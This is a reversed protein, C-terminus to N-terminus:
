SRNKYQQLVVVPNDISQQLIRDLESAPAYKETAQLIQKIYGNLGGGLASHAVLCDVFVEKEIQSLQYEQVIHEVGIHTFEHIFGAAPTRGYIMGDRTTLRIVRAQDVNYSGGTGFLTFLLEYRNKLAFGFQNQLRKAELFALEVARIEQDFLRETTVYREDVPSIANIVNPVKDLAKQIASRVEEETSQPTLKKLLIFEPIEPFALNQVYQHQMYWPVNRITHELRDREQERTMRQISLEINHFTESRHARSVLQENQIVEVRNQRNM